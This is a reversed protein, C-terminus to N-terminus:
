RGIFDMLSPMKLIISASSITAQLATNARQYEFAVKAPDIGEIDETFAQFTELQKQYDLKLSEIRNMKAGISATENNVQAIGTDLNDLQAGVSAPDTDDLNGARLATELDALTQFLDVTSATGDGQFVQDGRSQIVLTADESIQVSRVNTDGAYTAVPDAGPQSADLTYPKTDSKFGSFIYQGNINTNSIQLLQQQLQQVETAIANRGDQNLTGNKGKIALEKAHQLLENV